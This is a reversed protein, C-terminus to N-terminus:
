TQKILPILLGDDKNFCSLNLYQDIRRGLANSSGVYKSNTAIFTFIYVGAKRIRTESTGQKVPEKNLLSSTKPTRVLCIFSKITENNLPLTYMVGPISKISDLESQTISVGQNILLKNIVESTILKFDNFLKSSASTSYKLRPYTNILFPLAINNVYTM